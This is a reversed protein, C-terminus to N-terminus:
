EPYTVLVRGQKQMEHALELQHNHLLHPNVVTVLKTGAKLVELTTGAGAHAIILDCSIIYPELTPLYNITEINFSKLPSFDPLQASGHQVILRTVKLSELFKLFSIHVCQNTLEEFSTTGVTILVQM